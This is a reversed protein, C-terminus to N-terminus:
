RKGRNRVIQYMRQVTELPCGLTIGREDIDQIFQQRQGSPFIVPVNPSSYGPSDFRLFISYHKSPFPFTDGAAKAFAEQFIRDSTARDRFGVPSVLNLHRQRRTPDFMYIASHEEFALYKMICGSQEFGIVNDQADFHVNAIVYLVDDCYRFENQDLYLFEYAYGFGQSIRNLEQDSLLHSSVSLSSGIARAIHPVGPIPEGVIGNLGCFRQIVEHGSGDYNSEDYFLESPWGSNWLFCHEGDDDLIWGLV